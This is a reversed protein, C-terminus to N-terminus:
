TGLSFNGVTFGQMKMFPGWFAHRNLMGPTILHAHADILM